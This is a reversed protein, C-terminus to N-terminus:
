TNLIDEEEETPPMPTREAASPEGEASAAFSVNKPSEISQTSESHEGLMRISGTASDGKIPRPSHVVPLISAAKQLQAPAKDPESGYPLPRQPIERSVQAEGDDDLGSLKRLLAESQQRALLQLQAQPDKITSESNAVYNCPCDSPQWRRGHVCVWESQPPVGEAVPLPHKGASGDGGASDGGEEEAWYNERTVPAPTVPLSPRDFASPFDTLKLGRNRGAGKRGAGPQEGAPPQTRERRHWPLGEVYRNIDPHEDWANVHSYSGWADTPTIKITPTTPTVPEKQSETQATSGTVSSQHEAAAATESTVQPESSSLNETEISEGAFSRSARPRNSEWPFLPKPPQAPAAPKEKPVEYWMNKPPSPYRLPPVFPKADSSMEYHTAPFNM